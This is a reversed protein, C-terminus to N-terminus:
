SVLNCWQGQNCVKSLCLGCKHWDLLWNCAAFPGFTISSQMTSQLSPWLNLEHNTVGWYSVPPHHSHQTHSYHHLMAVSPWRRRIQVNKSEPPGLRYVSMCWRRLECGMIRFLGVAAVEQPGWGHGPRVCINSSVSFYKFCLSVAAQVAAKHVAYQTVNNGCFCISEAPAM